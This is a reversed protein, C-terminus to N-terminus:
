IYQVHYQAHFISIETHDKIKYLFHENSHIDMGFNYAALTLNVGSVISHRFRPLQLEKYPLALFGGGGGGM